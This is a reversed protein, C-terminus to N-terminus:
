PRRVAGASWVGARPPPGREAACPRCPLWGHRAVLKALARRAALGAALRFRDQRQGGSRHHESEVLALVGDPLRGGGHGRGRRRLGGRGLSARDGELDLIEGRCRQGGRGGRRAPAGMGRPFERALVRPRDHRGRHFGGRELDAGAGQDLTRAAHRRGGGRHGLVAELGRRSAEDRARDTRPSAAAAARRPCRVAIGEQGLLVRQGRGLGVRHWRHDLGQAKLRLRRRTHRAPTDAAARRRGRGDHHRRRARAGGVLRVGLRGVPAGVDIESPQVAVEVGSRTLRQLPRERHRCPTDVVEGEAVREGGRARRVPRHAEFHVALDPVTQEVELVRAVVRGVALRDGADIEIGTRLRDAQRRGAEATRVEVIEFDAAGVRVPDDDLGLIQQGGRRGVHCRQRDVPRDRQREQVALRLRFGEADARLAIGIEVPARGGVGEVNGDGRGHGAGVADGDGVGVAAGRAPRERERILVSSRDARKGERGRGSRRSVRGEILIESPRYSGSVTVIRAIHGVLGPPFTPRLGGEGHIHRQVGARRHKAEGARIAGVDVLELEHQDLRELGLRDGRGVDREGIERHGLVQGAGHDATDGDGVGIGGRVRDLDELTRGEAGAELDHVTIELEPGTLAEIELGAGAERDTEDGRICATQGGCSGERDGDGVVRRVIGERGLRVDRRRGPVAACPGVFIGGDGEIDRRQDGIGIGVRAIDKGDRGRDGGSLAGDRDVAREDGEGRGRVEGALSVDGVDDGVAARGDARGGGRQGDGDRRHVISRGRQAHGGHRDGLIHGTRDHRRDRDGVDVREVPRIVDLERARIRGLEADDVAPACQM